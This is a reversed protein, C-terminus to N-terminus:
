GRLASRHRCRGTLRNSGRAGCGRCQRRRSRGRLSARRRPQNAKAYYEGQPGSRYRYRNNSSAQARSASRTFRVGPLGASTCSGCRQRERLPQFSSETDASRHGAIDLKGGGSHIIGGLRLAQRGLSELRLASDNLEVGLDPLAARNLSLKLEGKADPETVTGALDFRGDIGGELQSIAPVFPAVVDLSPFSVTLDGSLQQAAEVGSIIGRAEVTGEDALTTALTVSLNDNALNLVASTEEHSLSFRDQFGRPLSLAGQSVSLAVDATQSGEGLSFAGQGNIAGTLQWGPPLAPDALALPLQSINFAGRTRGPDQNAQLCVVGDDNSRLCLEELSAADGDVVLTTPAYLRWRGATRTDVNVSQLRGQWREGELAGTLETVVEGLESQIVGKLGHKSLTGDATLTVSQVDQGGARLQQANFDVRSPRQSTMGIDAEADLQGISTDQYRLKSGVANFAIEPSQLTGTVVGKATLRGAAEPLVQSLNPAAFDFRIDIVESVSGDVLLRNDGSYIEVQRAHYDNGTIKGTGTVSVPYGRLEGSVGVVDLDAAVTDAITGQTRLNGGLRSPWDAAFGGLNLDSLDIDLTWRPNPTWGM